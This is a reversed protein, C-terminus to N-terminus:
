KVDAVVRIVRDLAEIRFRPTILAGKDRTASAAQRSYISDDENTVLKKYGILVEIERFVAIDQLVGAVGAIKEACKEGVGIWISRECRLPCHSINLVCDFCKPAVPPIQLPFFCLRIMSGL